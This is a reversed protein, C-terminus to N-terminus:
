CTRSCWSSRPPSWPGSPSSSGSSWPASSAAGQAFGARRHHRHHLVRRDPTAEMGPAVAIRPAALAGGIGALASGAAFVLTYVLPVNVGLTSLTERDHAAAKILRGWPSRELLLWLMGAVVPGAACLFLLYSPYRTIGFDVAGDLGPPYPVSHQDTGWVMKVADGALLM